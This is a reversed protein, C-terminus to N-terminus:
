VEESEKKDENFLVKALECSFMTLTMMLTPDTGILKIFLESTMLDTTADMFEYKSIEKKTDKFEKIIEDYNKM